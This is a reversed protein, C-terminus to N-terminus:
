CSNEKLINSGVGNQLVDSPGSLVDLLRQCSYPCVRQQIMKTEAKVSKVVFVYGGRWDLKM